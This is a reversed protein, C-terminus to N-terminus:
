ESSQIGCDTLYNDLIQREQQRIGNTKNTLQRSIQNIRKFRCQILHAFSIEQHMYNVNRMRIKFLLNLHYVLCDSIQTGIAFRAHNDEVFDISISIHFLRFIVQCRFCLFVNSKFFQHLSPHRFQIVITNENWGTFLGIQIFQFGNYIILYPFQM